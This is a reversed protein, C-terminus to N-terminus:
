LQRKVISLASDVMQSFKNRLNLPLKSWKSIFCRLFLREFEKEGRAYLGDYHTVCFCFFEMYGSYLLIEIKLSM